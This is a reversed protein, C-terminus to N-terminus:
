RLGWDPPLRDAFHLHLENVIPTWDPRANREAARRDIQILVLTLLRLASDISPLVARNKTVKRTQRHINELPNTTYVMKRLSASMTWLIELRPLLAQWQKVIRAHREGHRDAFDRLEQEALEYSPAQYIRKLEAAIAKRDKAAVTKLSQRMQHVVCPIHRARRFALELAQDLGTLADTAALLIDRIGRKRLEELVTHWFSASEGHGESHGSPAIWLGLVEHIGSEAYGSVVYVATSAVGNSHRVKVHMADVYIIAWVAELPRNRWAVLEPEIREVFNSVFNESAAFHYLERVHRAIDRTTMGQAYMALVRQEIESSMTQHKSLLKPEFEGARDRPVSIETSGMATKLQKPSYGNRTNTRRSQERSDTREHRPYGLHENLEEKLAHEVFIGIMRGLPSGPEMSLPKGAAEKAAAKLQAEFGAPVSLDMLSNAESNRTKTKPPEASKKQPM